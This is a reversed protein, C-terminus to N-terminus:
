LDLYWILMTEHAISPESAYAYRNIEGLRCGQRVYFRCAPVNINQTEVKLQHCGKEESWKVAETFLKTGIGSRRYDPHIRLDWLAALDDRGNLMNVGPTRFALTAGGVPNNDKWALFIAWNSIDFVKPFRTPGEGNDKDYDKIYPPKVSEEHLAIGNFGDNLLEVRLQSKVEFSIPITSYEPLSEADVLRIDLEM